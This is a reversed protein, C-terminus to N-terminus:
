MVEDWVQEILSNIADIESGRQCARVFHGKPTQCEAISTRNNERTVVFECGKVQMMRGCLDYAPGLYARVERNDIVFEM